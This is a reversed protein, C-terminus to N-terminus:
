VGTMKLKKVNIDNVARNLNYVVFYHLLFFLETYKFIFLWILYLM